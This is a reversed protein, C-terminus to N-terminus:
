AVQVADQDRAVALPARDIGDGAAACQGSGLELAIQQGPEIRLRQQDAIAMAGIAGKCALVPNRVLGDVQAGADPDPM